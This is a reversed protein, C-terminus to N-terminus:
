MAGARQPIICGPKSADNRGRDKQSSRRRAVSAKPDNKKRKRKKARAQTCVFDSFKTAERELSHKSVKLLKKKKKM